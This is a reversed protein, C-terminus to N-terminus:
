IPLETHVCDRRGSTDTTVWGFNNASLFDFLQDRYKTKFWETHRVEVFVELDKPLALLYAQLADFNKTGFNDPLQLFCPGLKNGYTYISKLFASTLEECNKLRRFHTIGQYFKPCFKFDKGVDKAWSAVKDESYIQYFSSNLEICNFHKGYQKLFDKEKTGKPYILGVWEKRGWKACGFHVTGKANSKAAKLVAKTKASEEPLSYDIGNLDEPDVRGFEM